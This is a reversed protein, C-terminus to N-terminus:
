PGWFPEVMCVPSKLAEGQNLCGGRSGDVNYACTSWHILIPTSAGDSGGETDKAAKKLSAVNEM